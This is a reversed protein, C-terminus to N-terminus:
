NESHADRLSLVIDRWVDDEQGAYFYYLSNKGIVYGEVRPFPALVNVQIGPLSAVSINKIAFKEGQDTLRQQVRLAMTSVGTPNDPFPSPFVELRVIGLQGYLGENLFNTPDTGKPAFHVIEHKKGPDKFRTTGAYGQPLRVVWNSPGVFGSEGSSASASEPPPASKQSLAFLAVGAFILAGAILLLQASRNSPLGGAKKKETRPARLAAALCDQFDIDSVGESYLQRRLEEVPHKPLNEQLYAVVEPMVM